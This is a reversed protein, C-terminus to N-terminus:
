TERAGGAPGWDGDSEVHLHHHGRPSNAHHFLCGKLEVSSAITERSVVIPEWIALSLVTIIDISKRVRQGRCTHLNSRMPRLGSEGSSSDPILFAASLLSHKIDYFPIETNRHM